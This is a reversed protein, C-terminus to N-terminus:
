KNKIIIFFLLKNLKRILSSNLDSYNLKFGFKSFINIKFNLIFLIQGYIWVIIYLHEEM